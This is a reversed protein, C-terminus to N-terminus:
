QKSSTQSYGFRVITMVNRKESLDSDVDASSRLVLVLQQGGKQANSLLEAQAPSVELTATAGTSTQTGEKRDVNAGIALVRINRLITEAMNADGDSAKTDGGTNGVQIIDVRDNPFIFNGASSSGRNDISVAIARKGAPLIASMYGGATVLFRKLIPQDAMLVTRTTMGVFERDADPFESKRTAGPPILNSSWPQWRMDAAKVSSGMDIDKAAVLLHDTVPLPAEVHVEPPAPPRVMLLYAAGLISILAIVLAVLRAPKM